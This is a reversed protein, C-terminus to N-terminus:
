EGYVGKKSFNVKIIKKQTIISKTLKERCLMIKNNNTENQEDTKKQKKKTIITFSTSSTSLPHPILM